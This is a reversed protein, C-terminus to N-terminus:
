RTNSLPTINWHTIRKFNGHQPNAFVTFSIFFRINKLSFEAKLASQIRYSGQDILALKAAFHLRLIRIGGSFAAAKQNKKKFQCLRPHLEPLSHQAARGKGTALVSNRELRQRAAPLPDRTIIAHFTHAHSTTQTM